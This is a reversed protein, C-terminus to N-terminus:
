LEQTKCQSLENHQKILDIKIALGVRSARTTSRARFGQQVGMTRTYVCPMDTSIKSAERM